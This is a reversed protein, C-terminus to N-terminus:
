EEALSVSWTITNTNNIEEDFALGHFGDLTYTVTDNSNITGLTIVNGDTLDLIEKFFIDTTRTQSRWTSKDAVETLALAIKELKEAPIKTTQGMAYRQLASKSIGTLKSLTGYSIGSSKISQLIRDSTTKM